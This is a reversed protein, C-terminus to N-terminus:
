EDLPSPLKTLLAKLENRRGDLRFLLNVTEEDMVDDLARRDRIRDFPILIAGFQKLLMSAIERVDDPRKDKLMDLFAALFLGSQREPDFSEGTFMTRFADLYPKARRQIKDRLRAYEEPGVSAPTFNGGVVLMIDEEVKAM